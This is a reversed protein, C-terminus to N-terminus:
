VRSSAFFSVRVSGFMAGEAPKAGFLGGSSTAAGGGGGFLSGGGAAPAAGGGGFLSGAPKPAAAAGGGGFLNTSPPPAAPTTSGATPNGFGGFPKAPTASAPPICSRPGLLALTLSVFSLPSSPVPRVLGPV